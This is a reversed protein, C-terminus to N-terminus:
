WKDYEKSRSSGSFHRLYLLMRTVVLNLRRLFSRRIPRPTFSAEPYFVEVAVQGFNEYRETRTEQQFGSISGAAQFFPQTMLLYEAAPVSNKLLQHIIIVNDGALEEYHRVKKIVVQGYHLIIKLRLRDIQTCADCGCYSTDLSLETAKNHFSSFFSVAQRTVDQLVPVPDDVILAYLFAADGELKNLILPFQATDLVTELLKTIIDEAHLLSLKQQRIFKTYGSIDVLVLATTILEM